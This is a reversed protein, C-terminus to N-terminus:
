GPKSEFSLVMLVIGHITITTIMCYIDCTYQSQKLLKVHIIKTLKSVLEILNISNDNEM